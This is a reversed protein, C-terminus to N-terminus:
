GRTDRAVPRFLALSATHGLLFNRAGIPGIEGACSMGATPIAGLADTVAQADHHRHNFLRSGRGNCTFVLAGGAPHAAHTMLLAELDDSASKAEQVHFQVTQGPRVLDGVVIADHQPVLRFQRILFDGRDFSAQQENIVRGLLIGGQRALEMDRAPCRNLITRFALRAPRGGLEHIVNREARTIVLPDGIPRCGQSVVTEMRAGGSIAIGAAGQRLTEGGFIICNQGPQEAGTAMGGIVPRGPYADNLQDLLQVPNITFPDAVLLLSHEGAPDVELYDALEEPSTMREVDGQSLHFSVVEADGLQAAWLAIAPQNEYEQDGHLVTETTVGIFARSPLLDPIQEAIGALRDEFHASAFLLCIDAPRGDLAPAVGDALRRAVDEEQVNTEVASGFVPQHTVQPM